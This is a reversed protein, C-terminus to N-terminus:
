GIMLAVVVRRDESLLVNFTRCAADNAMIEVGVGQQQLGASLHAAPFELTKGTGIIVIEPQLATCQDIHAITLQAVELPPWPELTDPSVLVSHSILRDDIVIGKESWSQISHAPQSNEAFRMSDLYAPPTSYVLPLGAQHRAQRSAGTRGLNEKHGLASKRLTLQM